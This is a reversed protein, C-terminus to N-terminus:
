LRAWREADSREVGHRDFVAGLQTVFALQRAIAARVDSANGDARALTATSRLEMAIGRMEAIAHLSEGMRGYIQESRRLQPFVALVVLLNVAVFAAAVLVFLSGVELRLRREPLM